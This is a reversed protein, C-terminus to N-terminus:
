FHPDLVLALWLAINLTSDLVDIWALCEFESNFLTHNYVLSIYVLVYLM